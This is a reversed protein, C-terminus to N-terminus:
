ETIITTLTMAIERFAAQLQPGTVAHLHRGEGIRAVNRMLSQNADAGFTITHIVVDRAAIRRASNLPQPGVNHIGDTMVIMTREAFPQEGSNLFIQEGADMGATINTAGGVPMRSFAAALANLNTTLPVDATADSAYSALGIREESLTELLTLAFTALSVGLDQVKRGAMSGSRDVVLVIDRHMFTATATATPQFNTMGWFRGFILPVAGSRSRETRLGNVRISNFPTRNPSFTFGGTRNDLLSRGFQFDGDALRLPQNFVPNAAALERGRAIAQSVDRTESLTFAAAKAAADTSTRLELRSLQMHAIDISMAVTVMFGVMLFGILILM